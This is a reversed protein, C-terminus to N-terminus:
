TTATAKYRVEVKNGNAGITETVSINYAFTLTYIDGTMVVPDPYLQIDHFFVPV